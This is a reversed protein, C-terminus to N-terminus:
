HHNVFFFPHLAANVPQDPTHVSLSINLVLFITRDKKEKCLVFVVDMEQPPQQPTIAQM